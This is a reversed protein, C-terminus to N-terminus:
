ATEGVIDIRVITTHKYVSNAFQNLLPRLELRGNVARRAFTAVVLFPLCDNATYFEHETRFHTRRSKEENVTVIRAPVNHM